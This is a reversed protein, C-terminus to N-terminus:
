LQDNEHSLSLPVGVVDWESSVAALVAQDTIELEYRYKRDSPRRRRAM